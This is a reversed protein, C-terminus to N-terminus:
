QALQINSCLIVIIEDRTKLTDEVVQINTTGPTYQLLKPSPHGYVSEFPTLKTSAHVSTNYWYEALALWKVWGNPKDTSFCRLFQEVMKNVIETQGDMQFHYASSFKLTTGQLKFLENWFNSTFTPDRDTIISDPMGHLRFVNTLFLNAIKSTTYPHSVPIFHAYKSLRDVVVM